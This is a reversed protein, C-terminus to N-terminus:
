VAEGGIRNDFCDSSAGGHIEQGQAGQGRAHQEGEDRRDRGARVVRHQECRADIEAEAARQRVHDADAGADRDHHHRHAEAEALRERPQRHEVRHQLDCADGVQEIQGPPDACRAFHVGVVALRARHREDFGGQELEDVWFGPHHHQGGGGGNLERVAVARTRDAHGHHEDEHAKGADADPGREALAHASEQRVRAAQPHEVHRHGHQQHCREVREDRLEGCGSGSCADCRGDDAHRDGGPEAHERPHRARGPEVVDRAHRPRGGADPDRRVARPSGRHGHGGQVAEVRGWNSIPM